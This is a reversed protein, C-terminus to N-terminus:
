LTIVSYGKLNRTLSIFIVFVSVRGPTCRLIKSRDGSEQCIDGTVSDRQGV